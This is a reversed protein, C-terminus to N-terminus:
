NNVINVCFISAICTIYTLESRLYGFLSLDVWESVCQGYLSVCDKMWNQSFPKWLNFRISIKNDVYVIVRKGLSHLLCSVAKAIRFYYILFITLLFSSTIITLTRIM